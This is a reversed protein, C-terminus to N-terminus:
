REQRTCCGDRRSARGNQGVGGALQREAAADVTEGAVVVGVGGDGDRELVQGDEEIEDGGAAGEVGGCVLRDDVGDLGGGVGGGAVLGAVEGVTVLAM